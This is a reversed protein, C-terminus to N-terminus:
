RMGGRSSNTVRVRAKRFDTRFTADVGVRVLERVALM